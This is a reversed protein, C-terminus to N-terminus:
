PVDVECQKLWSPGEGERPQCSLKAQHRLHPPILELKRKCDAVTDCVLSTNSLDCNTACYTRQWAVTMSTCCGNGSACDQPRTCGFVGRPQGIEVEPPDKVCSAIGAKWECFEDTACTRKGAATPCTAALGSVCYDDECHTGRPCRAGDPKCVEM